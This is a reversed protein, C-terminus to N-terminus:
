MGTYGYRSCELMRETIHDFSKQSKECCFKQKRDIIKSVLVDWRDATYPEYTAWIPNYKNNNVIYQIKFLGNEKVCRCYFM